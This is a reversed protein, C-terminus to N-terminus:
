ILDDLIADELDEVDSGDESEAEANAERIVDRNDEKLLM